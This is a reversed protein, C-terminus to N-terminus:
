LNTPFKKFNKGQYNETQVWYDFWSEDKKTRKDM